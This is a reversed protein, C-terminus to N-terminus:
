AASLKPSCPDTEVARHHVTRAIGLTTRHCRPVSNHLITIWSMMTVRNSEEDPLPNILLDDGTSLRLPGARLKSAESGVDQLNLLLLPLADSVFQM